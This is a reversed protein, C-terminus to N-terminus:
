LNLLTDAITKDDAGGANIVRHLGLAKAQEAIRASAVVYLCSKQWFDDLPTLLETIRKLLANSTIVICNVQRARWQQPIDKPLSLWIRQYSELYNVKAGRQRLTDAMLERGGNGRIILIEKGDVESLEPLALVGESNHQQPCVVKDLGHQQLAQQTATGVAIVNQYPWHQLPWSAHAFNVAAVSVFILMPNPSNALALKITSQDALSRYSFLPQPLAFIGLGTLKEALVRGKEQPRTILVKLKSTTM